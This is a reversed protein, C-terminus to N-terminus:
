ELLEAGATAGPQRRSILIRPEGGHKQERPRGALAVKLAELRVADLDYADGTVHGSCAYWAIRQFFCEVLRRHGIDFGASWKSCLSFDNKKVM